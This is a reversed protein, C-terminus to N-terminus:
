AGACGSGGSRIDKHQKACLPLALEGEEEVFYCGTLDLNPRFPWLVRPSACFQRGEIARGGDELRQSGLKVRESSEREGGLTVTLIVGGLVPGPILRPNALDSLSQPRSIPFHVFAPRLEFSAIFLFPDASIDAAVYRSRIYRWYPNICVDGSGPLLTSICHPEGGRCSSTFHSRLPSLLNKKKKGSKSSTETARASGPERGARAKLKRHLVKLSARYVVKLPRLAKELRSILAEAQRCSNQATRSSPARSPPRPPKITLSSVDWKPSGLEIGPSNAGASECTPIMSSSAAPRRTKEPIKRKRRGKIGDGVNEATLLILFTGESPLPEQSHVRHVGGGDPIIDHPFFNAKARNERVFFNGGERRNARKVVLIERKESLIERKERPRGCNRM